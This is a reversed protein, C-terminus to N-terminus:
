INVRKRPKKKEAHKHYILAVAKIIMVAVLHHKAACESSIVYVRRQPKREHERAWYMHRMDRVRGPTQFAPTGLAVM